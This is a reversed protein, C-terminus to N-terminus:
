FMGAVKAATNAFNSLAGATGSQLMGGLWPFARQFLADNQLRPQQARQAMVDYQMAQQKLELMQAAFRPDSILQSPDRNTLDWDRAMNQATYFLSENQRRLNDLQAQFTAASFPLESTSLAADARTKDAQASALDAQANAQMVQAGTNVAGQVQGGLGSFAQEPNQAPIMGVGPVSAGGQGVALLPNLGAARLDTVRRQMATDSMQTQWNEEQQIEALNMANTAQQGQQSMIDGAIGAIAPIAAAMFGM